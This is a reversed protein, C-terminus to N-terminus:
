SKIISVSSGSIPDTFTQVNPLPKCPKIRVVLTNGFHTFDWTMSEVFYERTLGDECDVDVIEGPKLSEFPGSKEFCKVTEKDGDIRIFKAQSQEM